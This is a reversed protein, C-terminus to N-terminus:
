KSTLVSKPKGGKRGKGTITKSGKRKLMKGGSLKSAESLPLAM